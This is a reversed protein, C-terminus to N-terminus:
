IRASCIPRKQLAAGGNRSDGRRARGHNLISRQRTRREAIKRVQNDCREHMALSARNAMHNYRSNTRNADRRIAYAGSGSEKHRPRVRHEPELARSRIPSTRFHRDSGNLPEVGLLTIPENLGAVPRHANEDVNAIQM